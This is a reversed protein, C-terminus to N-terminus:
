GDFWEKNQEHIETAARLYNLTERRATETAREDQGFAGPVREKLGALWPWPAPGADIFEGWHCLVDNGHWHEDSMLMLYQRARGLDREELTIQSGQQANAPTTGVIRHLLLDRRKVTAVWTKDTTSPGLHFVDFPGLVLTAKIQPRPKLRATLDKVLAAARVIAETRSQEDGAAIARLIGEATVASTLDRALDLIRESM